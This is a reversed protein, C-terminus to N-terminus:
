WVSGFLVSVFNMMVQVCLFHYNRNATAAAGRIIQGDVLGGIWDTRNNCIMVNSENAIDFLLLTM